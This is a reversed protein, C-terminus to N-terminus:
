PNQTKRRAQWGGKRSLMPVGGAGAPSTRTHEPICLFTARKQHMGPVLWRTAPLLTRRRTCSAGVMKKQHLFCREPQHWSHVLWRRRACEQCWDDRARGEGRGSGRAELLRRTRRSRSSVPPPQLSSAPSGRPRGQQVCLGCGTATCWRHVRRGWEEPTGHCHSGLLFAGYCSLPLQTRVDANHRRHM